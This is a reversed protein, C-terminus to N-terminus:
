RVLIIASRIPATLLSQLSRNQRYRGVEAGYDLPLTPWKAEYPANWCTRDFPEALTCGKGVESSSRM